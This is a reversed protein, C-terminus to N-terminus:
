INQELTILYEFAHNKILETVTVTSKENLELSSGAM